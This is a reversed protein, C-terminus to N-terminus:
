RNACAKKADFIIPFSQDRFLSLPEARRIADIARRTATAVVPDSSSGGAVAFHTVRGDDGISIRINVIVSESNAADCNPNWLRQLLQALGAIDNQTAGQAPGADPRAAPATAVRTPGRAGSAPRPPSARRATAVDRALADLSFTDKETQPQAPTKPPPRPPPPKPPPPKPKPVPSATPRPPPPPKVPAVKPRPPPPPAAPPPEPAKARPRPTETQAEHTEPAAEARRSDTTPGRTVITIPVATGIPPMSPRGLIMALVFVGVHLAVAAALAPGLSARSRYPAPPIM